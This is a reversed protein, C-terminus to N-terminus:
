GIKSLNIFSYIENICFSKSLSTTACTHCFKTSGIPTIIVYAYKHLHATTQLMQAVGQTVASHHSMLFGKHRLDGLDELLFLRTLHILWVVITAYVATPTPTAMAMGCVIILVDIMVTMTMCMSVVAASASGAVAFM